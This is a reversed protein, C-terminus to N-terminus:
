GVVPRAERCGAEGILQERDGAIRSMLLKEECARILNQVPDAKIRIHPNLIKEKGPGQKAAGTL